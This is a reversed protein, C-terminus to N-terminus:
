EPSSVVDHNNIALTSELILGYSVKDFIRFVMMLGSQKDPLDINGKERLNFRDKVTEGASYTELLHGVELGDRSGRNIVAVQFKAFGFLADFLSIVQGKM